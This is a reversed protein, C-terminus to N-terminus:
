HEVKEVNKRIKEYMELVEPEIRTPKGHFHPEFVLLDFLQMIKPIYGLNKSAKMAAEGEALLERRVEDVWEGAGPYRDRVVQDTPREELAALMGHFGLQQLVENPVIDGLRTILAHGAEHASAGRVFNESKEMMQEPLHVLEELVKGTKKDVKQQWFWQRNADQGQMAMQLRTQEDVETVVKLHPKRAITKILAALQDRLAEKKAEPNEGGFQEPSKM